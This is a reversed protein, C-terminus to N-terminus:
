DGSIRAMEDDSIDFNAFVNQVDDHDDLVDMLKLVNEADRGEIQVTNKPVMVLQASKVQISAAELASRVVDVEAPPTSVLWEEGEDSLDEAGAGLAVDFLQEESASEKALRLHGRRDFAWNATGTTGLVSNAKEFLKRFEAVTRNRNDTLSEVIFLTGGPGTGEYTVEEYTIGELEGTGRKIAKTINDAPMNEARAADIAKRLRPNNAPDGGGLRAAVTVEKIVKTWARGRKADSAAKKHKITSWKSHGSM